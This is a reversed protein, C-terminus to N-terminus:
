VPFMANAITIIILGIVGLVFLIVFLAGGGEPLDDWWDKCSQM